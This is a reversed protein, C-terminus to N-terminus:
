DGGKTLREALQINKELQELYKVKLQAVELEADRLNRLVENYDLRMRRLEGCVTDWRKFYDDREKELERIRALNRKEPM